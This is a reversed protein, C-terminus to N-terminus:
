DSSTGIQASRASALLAQVQVDEVQEFDRYWAGIALLDAPVQLIATADAEEAARAAAETSAVPAAVVVYKAGLRRAARVAAIMTSGTALGDDALVVTAGRLDLPLRGGRYTRERRAMEARERSAVEAFQRELGAREMGPERVEVGCPAIAGMALEPYGLMGVKRVILVDLPAHLVRAIERAVPVGGRALGLVLVPPPLDLHHVAAALARGAAARDAFVHVPEQLPPLAPPEYSPIM